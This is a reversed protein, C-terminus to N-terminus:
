DDITKESSLVAALAWILLVPTTINLVDLVAAFADMVDLPRIIKASRAVAPFAEM